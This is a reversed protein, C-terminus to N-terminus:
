YAYYKNKFIHGCFPCQVYKENQNGLKDLTIRKSCRECKITKKFEEM